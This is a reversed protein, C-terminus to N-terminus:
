SSLERELAVRNRKSVKEMDPSLRRMTSVGQKNMWEHAETYRMGLIEAAEEMSLEERMYGRIVKSIMYFM